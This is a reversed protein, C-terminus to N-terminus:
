RVRPGPEVAPLSSADPTSPSLTASRSEPRAETRSPTSDPRAPAADKEASRRDMLTTRLRTTMRVVLQPLLGIPEAEQAGTAAARTSLEM